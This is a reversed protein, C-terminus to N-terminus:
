PERDRRLLRSATKGSDPPRDTRQGFVVVMNGVAAVQDPGTAIALM